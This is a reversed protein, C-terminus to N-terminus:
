AKPARQYDSAEASSTDIELTVRNRGAVRVYRCERALGLTIPLGLGGVRHPLLPDDLAPSARKAAAVPDFPPADDEFVVRLASGDLALAILVRRDSDGGHGHSVTNTFLEELVLTLRLAVPSALQFRQCYAQAFAACLPVADLRAPFERREPTAPPNPDHM